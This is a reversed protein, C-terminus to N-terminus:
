PTELLERPKRYHEAFHCRPCLVQSNAPDFRSEPYKAFSKVHHVHLKVLTGCCNCMSGNQTGCAECKHGARELSLKKWERFEWGERLKRNTVAIGGKWAPNDAGRKPNKRHAEKMAAIHSESFQRGTKLRHNGHDKLSIGHEKLRKFVVTEGVGLEEAIERMSKSQYMAHLEERTPDFTRRTKLSPNIGYKHLRLRVVEATVGYM